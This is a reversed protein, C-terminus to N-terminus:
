MFKAVSRAFNVQSKSRNRSRAKHKPKQMVIQHRKEHKERGRGRHSISNYDDIESEITEAYGPSYVHHPFPTASNGTLIAPRPLFKISENLKETKDHETSTQVDTLVDISKTGNSLARDRARTIFEDIISEVAVELSAWDKRAEQWVTIADFSKDSIRDLKTEGDILLENFKVNLEVSDLISFEHKSDRQVAIENKDVALIETRWTKKLTKPIRTFVNTHTNPVKTTM